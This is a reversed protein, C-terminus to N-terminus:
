LNDKFKAESIKNFRALCKKKLDEEPESHIFGPVM